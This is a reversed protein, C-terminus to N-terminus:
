PNKMSSKELYSELLTNSKTKNAKKSEQLSKKPRLVM